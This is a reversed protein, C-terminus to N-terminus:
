KAAVNLKALEIANDPLPSGTRDVAPLRQGTALDYMGVVLRYQGPPAGAELTLRYRDIVREHGAWATTPYRGGQPQNDQQSWVLGDPGILQTFVTYDSDPRDITQWHLAFDLPRDITLARSDLDFGILRIQDGLSIATSHGPPEAQRQDLIRIQGLNLQKQPTDVAALRIPLFDFDGFTRDYVGFELTYLGAPTQRDIPLQFVQRIVEGPAWLNNPYEFDDGLVHDIQGWMTISPDLLHLSGVYRHQMTNLSRWYLEVEIREGPWRPKLDLNYGLLELEDGISANVAISLGAPLSYNRPRTSVDVLLEQVVRDGLDLQYTGPRVSPDVIFNHVTAVLDVSCPYALPPVIASWGTQRLPDAPEPWLQVPEPPNAEREPTRYDIVTLAQRIQSLDVTGKVLRERGLWLDFDPRQDPPSDSVTVQALSVAEGAEGRDDITTRAADLRLPIASLKLEYAGPQLCAPTPLQIEDRILTDPEWARTPYRGDGPHGQRCVAQRGARDFLCLSTLYDRDFTSGAQWFLTVPLAQGAMVQPSSLSYGRLKLAGSLDAELQYQIPVEAPDLRSVPLFPYYVPIIFLPATLLVFTLFLGSLALFLLQDIRPGVEATAPRNRWAGILQPLQSLGLVFFLGLATLAPYLHRGQATERTPLVLYRVLVLALYLALLLGLLIIDLRWARLNGLRDQNRQWFQLGALALGLLALLTLLGLSLNIMSSQILHGRGFRFWFTRFLLSLWESWSLAPEYALDSSSDRELLRDVSSTIVPDGLPALLGQFWGRDAVQNFQIFLFSFWVGAILLFILVVLGWRRLWIQSGWNDQRALLATVLTM